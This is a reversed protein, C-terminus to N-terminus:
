GDGFAALRAAATRLAEDEAFTRWGGFYALRRPNSLVSRAIVGAAAAAPEGIAALHRMAAVRVPLCEGEVLPRALETLVTVAPASDGTIRWLAYAAEARLWQEGAGATRRLHDACPAAASGLDALLAIPQHRGPQGTVHRMLADRGLEPDAGTRWLAWAAEPQDGARHRLPQAFDAAAPGCGGVARAAAALVYSDTSALLPAVAPLARQAATGWAEVVACLNMATVRDARAAALRAALADILAEAHEGLPALVEHVAPLWPLFVGGGGSHLAATPFGLRDGALRDVLGPLSRPDHQRALAWVAADGVTIRGATDRMTGDGALVALRDAYGAAETGLCGLLFAARYRLEPEGDGLHDGLYPLLAGTVTRWETLVRGAQDMTAVRADTEDGRSVAITYATAAVPDARLLTGTHRVITGRGGGIWASDQWGAADDHLVARALLEVHAVPVSPDSEHLAHLAALRLQLDEHELLQELEARLAADGPDRACVAGFALALDWRTVRDTEAHWRRRLALVADPHPIGQGALLTAERRVAPDPDELLALLRPRVADLAPQWAGDLFRPEIITAERALRWIVEVVFPRHHKAEGAALDVLFPLAAPAAPCIWGGQHYILNLLEDIADGARGADPDACARLLGPVDAARGYNHRLEWWPVRDLEDDRM